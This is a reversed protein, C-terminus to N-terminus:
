SPRPSRRPTRPRSPPAHPSTNSPPPPSPNPSSANTPTSSSPRPHNNAENPTNPLLFRVDPNPTTETQIFMTRRGFPASSPQPTWRPVQPRHRLPSSTIPSAKQHICRSAVRSPKSTAPRITRSLSRLASRSLTTSAMNRPTDYLRHSLHEIAFTTSQCSLM